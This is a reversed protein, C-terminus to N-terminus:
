QLTGVASTSYTINGPSYSSEVKNNLQGKADSDYGAMVDAEVLVDDEMRKGETSLAFPSSSETYHILDNKYYIAVGM